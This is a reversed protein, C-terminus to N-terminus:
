RKRMLMEGRFSPLYIHEIEKKHLLIFDNVGESVEPIYDIDDILIYGGAKIQKLALVMDNYVGQRTHDGDIHMFDIEDAIPLKNVIQTDLEFYHFHYPSLIKKAWAKYQGDEGGKGGHKGCNNDFGYIIADPCAQFFAWSSYGARVGIEVIVKPNILKCILYKTIYHSKYGEVREPKVRMDRECIISTDFEFQIAM